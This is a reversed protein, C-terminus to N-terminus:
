GLDDLALPMEGAWEDRALAIVEPTWFRRLRAALAGAQNNARDENVQDGPGLQEVYWRCSWTTSRLWTLRRLVLLWPRVAAALDEPLAALYAQYFGVVDSRDLTVDCAWLTSTPITAHAADIAPAGYLAKELDVFHARGAGDVLFNGPHTDTLVLTVPQPQGAMLAVTRRAWELESAIMAVFEVDRSAAEAFAAQAEIVAVTGALPDAHDQLPPRDGLGPVDLAHVKALCFAMAPLDRPLEARDGAIRDVLLAGMPLEAEPALRAQLRPVHGSASAREFCAAQYALNEAAQLSFQSVRPVRLLWRGTDGDAGLVEYHDHAIGPGDLWRLQSPQLGAFAPLRSLARCLDKATVPRPQM